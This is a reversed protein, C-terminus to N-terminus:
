TIARKLHLDLVGNKLTTRAGSETVSVPLPILHHLSFYRKEPHYQGDDEKKEEEQRDCTIKLTDPNILNVSIVSIDMGPIMDVTVMVEDDYEFVEANLNHPYSCVIESREEPLLPNDTPELALQFLYDMSAKLEDLEDYISRHYRRGM